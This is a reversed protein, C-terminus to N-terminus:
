VEARKTLKLRGVRMGEMEEVRLELVDLARDPVPHGLARGAPFHPLVSKEPPDPPQGM